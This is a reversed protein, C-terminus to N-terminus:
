SDCHPSCLRRKMGELFFKRVELVDKAIFLEGGTAKVLRDM